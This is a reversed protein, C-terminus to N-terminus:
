INLECTMTGHLFAAINFQFKAISAISMPMRYAFFYCGVIMKCKKSQYLLEIVAGM